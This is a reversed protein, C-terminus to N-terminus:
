GEGPLRALCDRTNAEWRVDKGVAEVRGAVDQGRVRVKPRRLGSSVCRLPALEHSDSQQLRASLVEAGPASARLPPGRCEGEERGPRAHHLARGIRLGPVFGNGSFPGFFREAVKKFSFIVFGPRVDELKRALLPRGYEYEDARM